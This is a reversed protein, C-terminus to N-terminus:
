VKISKLSVVMDGIRAIIMYEGMSSSSYKKVKTLTVDSLPNTGSQGERLLMIKEGKKTITKRGVTFDTTPKDSGATGYVVQIKQGTNLTDFVAVLEAQSQTAAATKDCAAIVTLLQKRIAPNDSALRIVRKRLEIENM